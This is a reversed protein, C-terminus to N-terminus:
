LDSSVREWVSVCVNVCVCNREKESEKERERVCVCVCERERERVCVCVRVMERKPITECHAIHTCPFTWTKSHASCSFISNGFETVINSSALFRISWMKNCSQDFLYQNFCLIVFKLSTHIFIIMECYVSKRQKSEAIHIIITPNWCRISNYFIYVICFLKNRSILM